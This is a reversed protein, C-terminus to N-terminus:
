EGIVGLIMASYPSGKLISRIEPCKQTMRRLRRQSM